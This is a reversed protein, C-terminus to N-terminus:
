RDTVPRVTLSQSVTGLPGDPDHVVSTTLGLGGPGFTVATDFGIWDDPRPSRHLHATLDVNPFAVDRPDARVVMGNAIDFLGVARATPSVPERDLLPHDPWVWFQGRGPDHLRRRLQVSAVFGGPWLTSPDWPELERPPPIPAHGSGALGETRIRHLLWARLRVVDRGGHTLRAEVLEVTRGPRLLGVTTEVEDVPVTGLIDYSLRAVQLDPGRRTDRDLEVVHALLGLAPAIHQEDTKWAGGTHETARFASPGTRVFYSM